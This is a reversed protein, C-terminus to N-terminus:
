SARRCIEANPPARYLDVRYGYAPGSTLVAKRGPSSYDVVWAGEPPAREPYVGRQNIGFLPEVPILQHEIQCFLVREGRTYTKAQAVFDVVNQGYREQSQDSLVTFYLCLGVASVPISVAAIRVLWEGRPGYVTGWACIIALPPFFPALRDGRISTTAMLALMVLGLYLLAPALAHARWQRWPLVFAGAVGALSWPLFRSIMYAPVLVIM